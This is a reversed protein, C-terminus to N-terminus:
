LSKFFPENHDKPDNDCCIFYEHSSKSKQNNQGVRPGWMLSQLYGLSQSLNSITHVPARKVSCKKYKNYMHFKQILLYTVTRILQTDKLHVLEEKVTM